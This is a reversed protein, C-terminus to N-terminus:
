YSRALTGHWSKLGATLGYVRRFGLERMLRIATASRKGDRCYIFYIRRKDLEEIRSLFEPSLVDYNVSGPIHLDYFENRSSVDILLAKGAYHHLKERFENSNLNKVDKSFFTLFMGATKAVTQISIFPM